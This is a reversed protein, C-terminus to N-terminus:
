LLYMLFTEADEFTVKNKKPKAVKEDKEEIILNKIEKKLGYEKFILGYDSTRLDGFFYDASITRKSIFESVFLGIERADETQSKQEM